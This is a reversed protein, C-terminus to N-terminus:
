IENEICLKPKDFNSQDRPLGVRDLFPILDCSPVDLKELNEPLIEHVGEFKDFEVIVGSILISM